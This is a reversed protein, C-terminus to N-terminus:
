GYLDHATEFDFHKTIRIINMNNLKKVDNKCPIFWEIDPHNYETLCM